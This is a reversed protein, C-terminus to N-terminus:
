RSTARGSSQLGSFMLHKMVPWPQSQQSHGIDVQEVEVVVQGDIADIDDINGIDCGNMDFIPWM